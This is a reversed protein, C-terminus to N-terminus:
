KHPSYFDMNISDLNAGVINIKSLDSTGLGKEGALKVHPVQNLKFGMFNLAVTDLAVPDKGAFIINSKVPTNSFPGSGEGGIIGEIISLDPKRILNLDVISKDLYINNEGHLLGRYQTYNNSGYIKVSETGFINKLSLTTVAEDHTKLKAVSIVVDADYYIKSVYLAVGRTSNEPKILYSDEKKFSNFDVFEVGTISTYKNTSTFPYNGLVTGEAVIVKSAGCQKAMEVIKKVVRYDTTKPDSTGTPVCLNPKILVVDGSKIVSDLGGANKIATETTTDAYKDYDGNQSLGVGVVPSSIPPESQVIVKIIAEITTDTVKGSFVYTGAKNGNYVPNGSDWTVSRQEKTNNSMNVTVKDPLGINSQATGYEIHKDAISDIARVIPSPTPTHISDPRFYASLCGSLFLISGTILSTLLFVKSKSM